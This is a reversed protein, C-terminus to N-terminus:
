NHIRCGPLASRLSELQSPELRFQQIGLDELQTLGHLAKLSRDNWRMNVFNVRKLSKVEGLGRVFEISAPRDDWFGIEELASMYKLQEACKKDAIAGLLLVKLSPKGRLPALGNSTIGPSYLMNLRELNPVRALPVLAADTLHRALTLERLTPCEALHAIGGDTIKECALLDLTQLVPYAAVLRLGEDTMQDAAYARELKQMKAFHAVETDGSGPPFRIERLNLKGLHVLLRPPFNNPLHVQELDQLRSLHALGSDTVTSELKLQKLRTLQSILRLDDDTLGSPFPQIYEAFKLQCILPVVERTLGEHPLNLYTVRPTHKLHELGPGKVATGELNLSRITPFKQLHVLDGDTIPCGSLTLAVVTPLPPLEKLIAAAEPTRVFNLVQLYPFASFHAAHEGTLQTNYTEITTVQMPDDPLVVGASKLSAYAEALKSAAPPSSEPMPRPANEATTRPTSSESLSSTGPEKPELAHRGDRLVMHWRPRARLEKLNVVWVEGQPGNFALKGEEITLAAALPHGPAFEIRTYEENDAARVIALADGRRLALLWGDRSASLVHSPDNLGKLEMETIQQGTPLSWRYLWLQGARVRHLASVFVNQDSAELALPPHELASRLLQRQSPNSLSIAEAQKDSSWCVLWDGRMGIWSVKPLSPSAFDRREHSDTDYSVLKPQAGGILAVISKGDPSFEAQIVPGGPVLTAKLANHGPQADFLVIKNEPHVLLLADESESFGAYHAQHGENHIDGFMSSVTCHDEDAGYAALRNGGRSFSLQRHDVGFLNLRTLKLEASPPPSGSVDPPSIEVSGNSQPEGAQPGSTVSSNIPQGSDIVPPAGSTASNTLGSNATTFHPPPPVSSTQTGVVPPRPPVGAPTAVPVDNAIAPVNAVPSSSPRTAAWVVIGLLAV